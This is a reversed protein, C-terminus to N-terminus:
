EKVLIENTFISKIIDGYNLYIESSGISRM